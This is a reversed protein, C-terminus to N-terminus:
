KTHFDVLPAYSLSSIFDDVPTTCLKQVRLIKSSMRELESIQLALCLEGAVLESFRGPDRLVPPDSM